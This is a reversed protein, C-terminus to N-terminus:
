MQDFNKSVRIFEDNTIIKNNCNPCKQCTISITQLSGDKYKKFDVIDECEVMSTGCIECTYM